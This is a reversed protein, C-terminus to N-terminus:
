STKIFVKRESRIFDKTRKVKKREKMKQVALQENKLFFWSSSSALGAGSGMFFSTPLIADM